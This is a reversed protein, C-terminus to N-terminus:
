KIGFQAIFSFTVYIISSFVFYAQTLIQINKSYVYKMVLFTSDQDDITVKAQNNNSDVIVNAKRLDMIVVVICEEWEIFDDLSVTIDFTINDGNGAGSAFTMVGPLMYDANEEAHSFFPLQVM